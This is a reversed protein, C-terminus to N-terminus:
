DSTHAPVAFRLWLYGCAGALLSATLIGTKAILPQDPHDAFGLTAIFISMTFGIGGLLALGVIFFFLTMLGDNVWHHLSMAYDNDGLVFGFRTEILAHYADALPSNTIILTILTILTSVLLLTRTTKQEHIFDQFPSVVNAFGKELASNAKGDLKSHFDAM